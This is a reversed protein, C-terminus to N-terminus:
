SVADRGFKNPLRSNLNDEAFLKTGLSWFEGSYAMEMEAGHNQLLIAKLVTRLRQRFSIQHKM